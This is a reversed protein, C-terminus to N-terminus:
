SHYFIVCLLLSIAHLIPCWKCAEESKFDRQVRKVTEEFSPLSDTLEQMEEENAKDLFFYLFLIM